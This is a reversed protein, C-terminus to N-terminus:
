NIMKFFVANFLSRIFFKKQNYIFSAFGRDQHHTGTQSCVRAGCAFNIIKKDNLENFSFTFLFKTHVIFVTGQGQDIYHNKKVYVIYSIGFSFQDVM